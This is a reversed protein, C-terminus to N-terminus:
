RGLLEVAHINGGIVLQDKTMKVIELSEGSIVLQGYNVKVIIQESAYGAIGKHHEILVRTTGFLEVVPLGPIPEGPLDAGEAMRQLWYKIRDM